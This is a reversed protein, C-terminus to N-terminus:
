RKAFVRAKIKSLTAIRRPYLRVRTTVEVGGRLIQLTVVQGPRHRVQMYDSATRAVACESVGNVAYVIDGVQLNARTLRAITRVEYIRSAFADSALGLDEKETFSLPTSPAYTISRVTDPMGATKWRDPDESGPDFRASEILTQLKAQPPVDFILHTRVADGNTVAHKL